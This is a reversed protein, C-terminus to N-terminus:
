KKAKNLIPLQNIEQLFYSLLAQEVDKHITHIVKVNKGAVTITSAHVPCKKAWISGQHGAKIDEYLSSRIYSDTGDGNLLRGLRSKSGTLTTVQDGRWAMIGLTLGTEGVKVILNNLVIFYVWSRHDSFMLDERINQYQWGRVVDCVKEFGDDVFNKIDCIRYRHEEFEKTDRFKKM